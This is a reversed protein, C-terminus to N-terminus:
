WNSPVHGSMGNALNASLAWQQSEACPCYCGRCSNFTQVSLEMSTAKKNLMKKKM